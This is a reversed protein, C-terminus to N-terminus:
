GCNPNIKHIQKRINLGDEGNLGKLLSVENGKNQTPIGASPVTSPVCKTNLLYKNISNIFLVFRAM